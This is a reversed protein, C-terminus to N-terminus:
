TLVSLVCVCVCVSVMISLLWNWDRGDTLTLVHNHKSKRQYFNFVGGLLRGTQRYHEDKNQIHTHGCHTYVSCWFSPGGSDRPSCSHRLSSGSISQARWPSHESVPAWVDHCVFFMNDNNNACKTLGTCSFVSCSSAVLVGHRTNLSLVCASFWFFAWYIYLKLKSCSIFRYLVKPLILNIVYRLIISLLEFAKITKFINETSCLLFYDWM